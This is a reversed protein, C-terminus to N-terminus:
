KKPSTYSGRYTSYSWPTCLIPVHYSQTTDFIAFRIPVKDLFPPNSLEAGLKKFYDEFYFLMEYRGVAMADGMLLPEDTRGDENTYVTKILRYRDGELISFDIRMGGGSKGRTIDLVHTTVKNQPTQQAILNPQKRQALARLPIFSLTGLSLGGVVFNRRNM